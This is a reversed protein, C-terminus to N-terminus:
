MFVYMTVTVLGLKNLAHAKFGISRSSRTHSTITPVCFLVSDNSDGLRRYFAKSDLLIWCSHALSMDLWWEM